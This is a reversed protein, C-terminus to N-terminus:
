PKKRLSQLYGHFNRQFYASLYMSKKCFSHRTCKQISLFILIKASFVNKNQKKSWKSRFNSRSGCFTFYFLKKEFYILIPTLIDLINASKFIHVQLLLLICGFRLTVKSTWFQWFSTKMEIKQSNETVFLLKSKSILM